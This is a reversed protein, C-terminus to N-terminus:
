TRIVWGRGKTGRVDQPHGSIRAAGMETIDADGTERKLGGTGPEAIEGGM